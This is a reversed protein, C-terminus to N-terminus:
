CGDLLQRKDLEITAIDTRRNNVSLCVTVSRVTVKGTVQAALVCFQAYGNVTHGISLVALYEPITGYVCAINRLKDLFIGQLGSDKSHL